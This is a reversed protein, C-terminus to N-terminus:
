LFLEIEQQVIFINWKQTGILFREIKSDIEQFM